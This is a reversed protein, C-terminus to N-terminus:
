SRLIRLVEAHVAASDFPEFDLAIATRQQLRDFLRVSVALADRTNEISFDAWCSDVAAIVDADMWTHMHTGNHWTDYDWGKRSRHDWEIMRLLQMKLDWDRFKAMWPEDRLICKACMLAAAYFWHVCTAFAETSPPEAGLMNRRDIVREAIADKDVLVRYARMAADSPRADAVAMIGFDIKADVYYILRSANWGDNPLAEVVLVEGFQRYWQDDDLLCSPDRVYLEIDLDSFRDRFRDDRAVSGTLIAARVNDDHHAWNVLQGLVGEHDV